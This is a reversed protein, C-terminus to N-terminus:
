AVNNRRAHDREWAAQMVADEEPTFPAGDADTYTFPGEFMGDAMRRYYQEPEDQHALEADRAQGEAAVSAPAQHPIRSDLTDYLARVKALREEPTFTGHNLAMDLENRAAELLMWYRNMQKLEPTLETTQM